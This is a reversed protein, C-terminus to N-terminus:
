SITYKGRYILSQKNLQHAYEPDSQIKEIIELAQFLQAESLHKYAPRKLLKRWDDGCINDLIIRGWCHNHTVPYKSGLNPLIVNISHIYQTQLQTIANNVPSLM